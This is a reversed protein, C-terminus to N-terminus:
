IEYKCKAPFKREFGTTLQYRVQPYNRIRDSDNLCMMQYDNSLIDAIIGKITNETIECYKYNVTDDIYDDTFYQYYSYIYQNVNKPLRVTSINSEIQERCLEKIKILSNKTIPTAIHVPRIIMGTDYEPLQLVSTILDIGSRCQTRFVNTRSFKTPETFHIHPQNDTFFDTEVMDGVPFMDDNFYIIKDALGDINWFFSEITCSNFTPLFKEPIFDKHYVIRVLERNIWVPVQTPGSVVLVINRVFPMYKSIGRILYKLTGWSRYRVGSPNHTRTAKIYERVWNSDSGNVYTIIVDIDSM